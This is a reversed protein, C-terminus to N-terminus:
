RGSDTNERIEEQGPRMCQRPIVTEITTGKGEGSEVHISYATGYYLDLRALVNLVGISNGPNMRRVFVADIQEKSMGLGNDSIIFALREEDQERIQVKLLGGHEVDAMGHLIANEIFPQFIMKHIKCTKVSEQCEIVYEFSDMFRVKQLYLYRELYSLEESIMVIQNSQQIQYRLIQAFKSLMSSIEAEKERVGSEKVMQMQENVTNMMINFHTAIQSIENKEDRHIGVKANLKGGQVKNMTNVIDTIYKSMKKSVYLVAALVALALLFSVALVTKQIEYLRHYVYNEDLVSYMRWGTSPVEEMLVMHPSDPDKRDAEEFYGDVLNGIVDKDYHSIIRGDADTILLYNIDRDGSVQGNACIESLVSEEISVIGTGVQRNTYYDMIQKGYSYVYYERTGKRDLYQTPMWKGKLGGNDEFIGQSFYRQHLGSIKPNLLEVEQRDYGYSIDSITRISMSRVESRYTLFEKMTKDLESKIKWENEENMSNLANVAMIFDTDRFLEDIAKKYGKLSTDLNLTTQRLSNQYSEEIKEKMFRRMYSSSLGQVIVLQFLFVGMFVMTLQRAFTQRKWIHLIGKM